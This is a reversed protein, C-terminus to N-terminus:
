ESVYRWFPQRHPEVVTCQAPLRRCEHMLRWRHASGGETAAVVVREPLFSRYLDLLSYPTSGAVVVLDTPLLASGLAIKVLPSVWAMLFNGKVALYSHMFTGGWLCPTDSCERLVERFTALRPCTYGLTQEVPFFRMSELMEYESALGESIIRVCQGRNILELATGESLAWIHVASYPKVTTHLFTSTGVATLLLLGCALLLRQKREAEYIGAVLLAISGYSLALEWGGFGVVRGTLGLEALWVAYGNMVTAIGSVLKGVVSAIWEVCGTVWLLCVGYLLVGSLPVLVVNAALFAFPMQGFYYFTLPLVLAQASISVVCMRWIWDVLKNKVALLSYLRRYFLLIGAVALFSLQFGVDFLWHPNIVLMLTGAGGWINMPPIDEALLKGAWLLTFMMAARVASASLGTMFVFFWVGGVVILLELWVPVPIGTGRKVVSVCGGLLAVIMGVHLGSIAMIHIAGSLSYAQKVEFPLMEKWGTGIAAALGRAAQEDVFREILTVLHRRTQQAMIYIGTAKDLKQWGKSFLTGYWGRKNAWKKYDFRSPVPVSEIEKLIGTAAIKDGPTPTGGSTDLLCLAVGRVSLVSDASIWVRHLSCPVRWWRGRRLPAEKVSVEWVGQKGLLHIYHEPQLSPSQLEYIFVGLLFVSLYALLGSRRLIAVIGLLACVAGTGVVIASSTEVINALAIGAALFGFVRVAPHLWGWFPHEERIM